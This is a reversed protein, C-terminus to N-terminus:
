EKPYNKNRPPATSERILLKGQLVRVRAASQVGSESPSDLLNLMMQAADHGMDYKPQDFTTLSPITFASIAINDFGVV